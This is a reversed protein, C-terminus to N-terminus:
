SCEYIVSKLKIVNPGSAQEMFSKVDTITATDSNIQTNAVAM